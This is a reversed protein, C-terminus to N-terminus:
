CSSALRRCNVAGLDAGLRQEADGDVALPVGVTVGEEDHERERQARESDAVDPAAPRAARQMAMRVLSRAAAREADPDEVGLEEREREAGGKGGKAADQEAEPLRRDREEVEVGNVVIRTTAKTMM